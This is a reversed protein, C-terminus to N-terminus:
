RLMELFAEVRTSLQGVDERSYDTDIRLIPIGAGKAARDVLTAEVQYPGCYQLSANVIGDANFEKAMRLIDAVRGGNPTFCACNLGLYRDAIGDLMSAVSDRDEPVLDEYYRSGTCMEEAVVVAGARELLDHIKWNPISMPSGTLLIRPANAAAVGFGARVRGELEEALEEVKESFRLVDDYFAVQVALLADRGSIPVPRSKRTQNLRQLARRKRNVERIGRALSAATLERGSVRELESVLRDIESRWLAKSAAGKMHPLEMVYLPAYQGFLEYAKKKGDCTTEGIVLDCAEVYPCVGGLKFGMFSKILACTNRPLIREVEDYAWEAGACLGVAVGGVARIIEEPVYLCFTGIVTGGAAKHDVLERVRLGHIESMVFDFYQMGEPRDKQSLFVEGYIQPIVALLKDHAELNLGLEKWMKRYDALAEAM